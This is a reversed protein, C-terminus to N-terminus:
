EDNNTQVLAKLKVAVRSLINPDQVEDLLVAMVDQIFQLNIMGELIVREGKIGLDLAKAADSARDFMQTNLEASAKRRLNEYSSLHEEQLRAYRQTESEAIKAVANTRSVARTEGWKFQNAWAYITSPKVTVNFTYTVSEAIAKAPRGELFLEMAKTKVEQPIRKPM